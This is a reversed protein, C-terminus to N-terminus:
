DESLVVSKGAQKFLEIALDTDGLTEALPKFQINGAKIEEIAVSRWDTITASVDLQQKKSWEMPFRRELYEFAARWDPAVETVTRKIVRKSYEFPEGKKNLRTEIVTETTESETSYGLINTRIAKQAVIKANARACITDEWFVRYKEQTDKIKPMDPHDKGTGVAEGIALWRYFTTESIGVANYVDVDTIGQELLRLIDAITEKTFKSKAM